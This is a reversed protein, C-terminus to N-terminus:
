IQASDITPCYFKEIYAVVLGVGEGHSVYPPREPNYMGDTLDRVLLTDYGRRLMNKIGFSRNLVCMNTHVGAYILLKIGRSALASHLRAGEDGCVLDRSHDISIKESQRKWVRTNPPYQDASDSGGDSDDIPLPHDKVPVPESAPGADEAALFRGRGETGQYFDMVGSPAHVVLSGKERARAATENIKEALLACRRSAGSSWHRDWMDVIIFATESAPRRLAEERIEWDRLGDRYVIRQSRSVFNFCPPFQEKETM